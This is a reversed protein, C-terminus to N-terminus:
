PKVAECLDHLKCLDIIKVERKNVDILGQKQFGSFIRSVTEITLGLYSGIDARTMPLQFETASLKLRHFRESLCLIFTAVRQEATKISLLSILHQDQIIVKGMLQFFHHQLNPMSASLSELKSFPIECISATELAIASNTYRGKGIGDMGVIEGPLFFGTVQEIGDKTISITKIFGSRVAFISDFEDNARYLYANKQIPRERQIIDNLKDVEDVKLSLPLCITKLRCDGCSLNYKNINTALTHGM